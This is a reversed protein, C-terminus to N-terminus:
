KESVIFGMKKLDKWFEPYSKEVVEPDAIEIKEGIVALAAFAMAMRHDNYTAIRQDPFTFKGSFEVEGPKIENLVIGTKKLEQQLAAIRDTEKIRLSKLGSLSGKWNKAALFVAMTQALDPCGLFDFKQPHTESSNIKVLRIGGGEQQAQVGFSEFFDIAMKDAQFSNWELGELFIDAEKALGAISFWYGAASWDPAPNLITPIFKQRSIHFGKEHEQIEIGCRRLFSFTLQLYPASFLPGIIEVELGKELTPGVMALASLFQSSVTGPLKVKGGCDEPNNGIIRLPPFVMKGGWNIDAGLLNLADVLPGIPREQMRSSGKLIHEGPQFALYATLFRMVTGADKVDSEFLHSDSLLRRMIQSDEAASFITSQVMGGSIASIVQARNCESKSIPLRINGKLTGSPHYLSIESM